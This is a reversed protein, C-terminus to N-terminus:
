GLMAELEKLDSRIEDELNNLRKLITKPPDYEIEEYQIEKYRNSTATLPFPTVTRASRM